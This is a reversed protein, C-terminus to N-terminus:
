QGIDEAVFRPAVAIQNQRCPFFEPDYPVAFIKGGLLLTGTWSINCVTETKIRLTKVLSDESNAITSCYALLKFGNLNGPIFPALGNKVEVVVIDKPPQPSPKGLSKKRTRPSLQEQKELALKETVTDKFESTAVYNRIKSNM